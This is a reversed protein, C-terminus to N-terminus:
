NPSIVHKVRQKVENLRAPLWLHKAGLLPVEDSGQLVEPKSHWLELVESATIFEVEPLSRLARLVYEFRAAIEPRPTIRKLDNPERLFSFYDLFSYSHLFIVLVKLGLAPAQRAWQVFTEGSIGNIDTKLLRRDSLWSFPGVTWRQESWFVTVPVALIGERETVQNRTWTNQCNPHGYFMSMDVHLGNQRLAELTDENLGYAGARHAIPDKGVLRRLLSKGEGIIQIQEALSYQWMHERRLDFMWSPHTHLQVDHNGELLRDTITQLVPLTWKSAEFVSLFVTLPCGCHEAIEAIRSMGWSRGDLAYELLGNELLGPGYGEWAADHRLNEADVTILIRLTM